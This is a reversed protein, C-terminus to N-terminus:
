GLWSRARKAAARVQQRSDGSGPRSHLLRWPMLVIVAAAVTEAALLLMALFSSWLSKM